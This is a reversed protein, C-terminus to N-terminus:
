QTSILNSSSAMKRKLNMKEKQRISSGMAKLLLRSRSRNMIKYKKLNYKTRRM